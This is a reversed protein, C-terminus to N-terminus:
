QQIHRTKHTKKKVGVCSLIEKKKKKRPFPLHVKIANLSKIIIFYVYYLNVMKLM